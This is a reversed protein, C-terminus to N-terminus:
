AEPDQDTPEDPPTPTVAAVFDASAKAAAAQAAAAANLPGGILSEIPLGRFADRTEREDNAM